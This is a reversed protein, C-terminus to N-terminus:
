KSTDCIYLILLNLFWTSFFFIPVNSLSSSYLKENAPAKGAQHYRLQLGVNTHGVAFRSIQRGHWIQIFKEGKHSEDTKAPAYENRMMDWTVDLKSLRVFRLKNTEM